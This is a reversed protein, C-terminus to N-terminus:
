GKREYDVMRGFIRKLKAIGQFLRSKVAAENSGTVKAIESVKMDHYYRLIVAERQNDSLEQLAGQIQIREVKQSLLDEINHNSDAYLSSELPNMQQERYQKSRYYDRCVNVAITILWHSFKGQAKYMTLSKMMKILTEQTLDLSIHYDTTKRYLFAFIMKYYRRVLVEMAAQSGQDIEEILEEDSPM